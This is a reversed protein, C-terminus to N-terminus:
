VNCDYFNCSDGIFGQRWTGDKKTTVGVDTDSVVDIDGGLDAVVINLNM